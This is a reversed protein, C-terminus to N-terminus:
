PGLAVHSAVTSPGSTGELVDLGVTDGIGGVVLVGSSVSSAGNVTTVVLDTAVLLDGVTVAISKGGGEGTLGDGNANIGGVPGEVLITDELVAAGVDVVGDEEGTLVVSAVPVDLVRPSGSPTGRTVDGKGGAVGATDAVVSSVGVSILERM